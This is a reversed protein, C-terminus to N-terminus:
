SPVSVPAIWALACSCRERVTLAELQQRCEHLESKTQELMFEATGLDDKVVEMAQAM